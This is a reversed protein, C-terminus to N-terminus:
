SIVGLIFGDGNFVPLYLCAVLQGEEPNWEVTQIVKLDGSEMGGLSDFVVRATHSAPNVSKIHGIRVINDLINDGAM